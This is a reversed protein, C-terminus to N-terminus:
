DLITTGSSNLVKLRLSGSPQQQLKKPDKQKAVKNVSSKRLQAKKSAGLKKKRRRGPAVDSIDFRGPFDQEFAAELM